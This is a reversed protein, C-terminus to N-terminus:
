DTKGVSGETFATQRIISVFSVVSIASSSYLSRRFILTEDHNLFCAMELVVFSIIINDPTLKPNAFYNPPRFSFTLSAEDTVLSSQRSVKRM